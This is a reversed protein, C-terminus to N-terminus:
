LFLRNIVVVHLYPCFQLRFKFLLEHQLIRLQIIMQAIIVHIILRYNNQHGSKTLLTYQPCLFEQSPDLILVVLKQSLQLPRANHM